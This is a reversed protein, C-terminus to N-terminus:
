YQKVYVNNSSGDVEHWSVTPNNNSRLVMAPGKANSTVNNDIVVGLELWKNESPSWRMVYVDHSSVGNRFILQSMVIVPNNDSRLQLTPDVADANPFKDAMQGTGYTLWSSGSWRKAYINISTSVGDFVREEWAVVPKGTSDIDISPNNAPFTELNAGREVWSTGNWQKVYISQIGVAFELWAVAPKGTSDVALAPVDANRSLDVDLPTVTSSGNMGVWATGNWRKVYVNTAEGDPGFTSYAVIPNNGSGVALAFSQVSRDSIVGQSQWSSGNWFKVHVQNGNENWAVVPKDDSRMAIVPSNGSNTNLKNGLRTWASGTWEKAYINGMEQWVVVPLDNNKRAISSHFADDAVNIDLARGLPRWGNTVFRKVYIDSRFTGVVEEWAVVPHGNTDLALSPFDTINTAKINLTNALTAWSSGDWKKVSISQTSGNSDKWAVTPTNTADLALSPSTSIGTPAVRLGSGVQLWSTGNWRKVYINPCCNPSMNEQWAVVPNNSSDLKLSPVSAEQDARIDLLSGLLVWSSGNWRKVYINSSASDKESWAVVPNGSADLALAPDQALQTARVNLASGLQVWSSGNWRKVYINSSTNGINDEYWAVVPNNTKDLALSPSFSAWGANVDLASGVSLWTTGNWRKIYIHFDNAGDSESWAVVPNETSDVALSPEYARQNVDVDLASGVQAWFNGDWRKVYIDRNFNTSPFEQWAVFLNNQKTMVVSANTANSSPSANLRGELLHWAKAQTELPADSPPAPTQPQINCAALLLLTGLFLTFVLSSKKM